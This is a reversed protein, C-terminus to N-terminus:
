EEFKSGPPVAIVTKKDARWMEVMSEPGQPVSKVGDVPPAPFRMAVQKHASARSRRRAPKQEQKPQSAEPSEIVTIDTINEIPVANPATASPADVSSGSTNIAATSAALKEKRESALDNYVLTAVVSLAVVAM